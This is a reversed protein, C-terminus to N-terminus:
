AIKDRIATAFREIDNPSWVFIDGWNDFARGGLIDWAGGAVLADKVTTSCNQQLTQWRSDPNASFGDWWSKINAENLHTAPIYVFVDPVVGEGRVDDNFSRPVIAPASYVQSVFPISERGMGQPWWSIYTGDSLTLSAHGWAEEKGRYSWVNVAASNPPPTVVDGVIEKVLSRRTNSDIAFIFNSM